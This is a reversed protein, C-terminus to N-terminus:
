IITMDPNKTVSTKQALLPQFKPACLKQSLMLAQRQLFKAHVACLFWGFANMITVM